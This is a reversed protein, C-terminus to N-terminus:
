GPNKEYVDFRAEVHMGASEYLEHAGTISEADVGLGGRRFGHRRLEAFSHLLLARGLGRRRWPRRVGLLRISGTAPDGSRAHCIAFGAIEDRDLALLWLEPDFWPAELLWHSWEEFTAGVPEWVDQFAEQQAEYLRRADGARFSRVELDAPWAPEATPETLDIAMRLAHRITRFGRRELQRLIAENTSWSGSLLRDAKERGREEAWDLMAESPRGRVDVWVRGDGLDELQVYSEGDLRADRERDFAPAAWTRRVDDEPVPDPSTLSMVRAVEAADDDTPARLTRVAM